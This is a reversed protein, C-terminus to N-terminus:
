ESAPENQNVVGSEIGKSLNSMLNKDRESYNLDSAVIYTRQILGVLDGDGDDLPLLRSKALAVDKETSFIEAVMLVYDTQYDARLAIMYKDEPTAPKMYWGYNLGLILGVLVSILFFLYRKSQM